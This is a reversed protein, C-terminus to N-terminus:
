ELYMNSWNEAANSQIGDPNAITEQATDRAAQREFAPTQAAHRLDERDGISRATERRPVSAEVRLKLGTHKGVRHSVLNTIASQGLREVFDDIGAAAAAGEITEKVAVNM